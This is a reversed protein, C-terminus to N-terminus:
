FDRDIFWGRKAALVRLRSQAEIHNGHCSVNVFDVQGVSHFRFELAFADIDFIGTWSPPTLLLIERWGESVTVGRRVWLDVLEQGGPMLQWESESFAQLLIARIEDPAGLSSKDEKILSPEWAM